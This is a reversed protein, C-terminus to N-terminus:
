ANRNNPKRKDHESELPLCRLLWEKIRSCDEAKLKMYVFFFTALFHVRAGATLQLCRVVQAM